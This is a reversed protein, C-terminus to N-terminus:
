EGLILRRNDIPILAGLKANVLAQYIEKTFPQLYKPDFTAIWHLQERTWFPPEKLMLWVFHEAMPNDISFGCKLPTLKKSFEPMPGRLATRIKNGGIDYEDETQKCPAMRFIYPAGNEFVWRTPDVVTGDEQVIWGHNSWVRDSFISEPDIPGHYHGYVARGEEIGLAVMADAIAYCKGAWQNLPLKIKKAVRAAEDLLKSASM